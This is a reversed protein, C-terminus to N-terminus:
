PCGMVSLEELVLFNTGVVFGNKGVSNKAVLKLILVIRGTNAPVAWFVCSM